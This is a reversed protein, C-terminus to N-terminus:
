LITKREERPTRVPKENKLFFVCNLSSRRFDTFNFPAEDFSAIGPKGFMRSAKDKKEENKKEILHMGPLPEFRPGSFCKM